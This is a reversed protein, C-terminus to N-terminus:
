LHAEQQEPNVCAAPRSSRGAARSDRATVIGMFGLDRLPVARCPPNNRGAPTRARSFEARAQCQLLTDVAPKATDRVLGIGMSIVYDSTVM